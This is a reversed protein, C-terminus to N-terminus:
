LEIRNRRVCEMVKEVSEAVTERDTRCEVEPTPPPEYPDDVGTVHLALGAQAKRYLGKIDRQQCVELPANVYVEVFAGINRRAEERIARYPSIASVLVVVGNRVLLQAVFAIRRINEDRGEKSFGLGKNLSDRVADGDLLEVKLGTAWLREYVAHALTTKGASSLGTFWIAFGEGNQARAPAEGLSSVILGAAVTQNSRPDIIIFSGTARNQAYPDLFIERHTEVEVTGIGNLALSEAAREELTRVDLVSRLRVVQACVQQTTHKLLYPKNVELPQESMWVLRATFRRSSEPPREPDALMSGRGVDAYDELEVAAAMPAVAEGAAGEFSPIRVVRVRKGSPLALLWDGPRVAGSAIQGSYARVGDAGRNVFQV